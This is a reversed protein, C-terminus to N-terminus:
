FDSKWILISHYRFTFVRGVCNIRMTRFSKKHLQLKCVMCNTCMLCLISLDLQAQRHLCHWQAQRDMRGM